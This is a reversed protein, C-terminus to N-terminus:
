CVIVYACHLALIISACDLGWFSLSLISFTQAQIDPHHHSHQIALSHNTSSHFHTNAHIHTHTTTSTIPNTDDASAPFIYINYLPNITTLSSTGVVFHVMWYLSVDCGSFQVNYSQMNKGSWQELRCIYVWGMNRHRNEWRCHKPLLIGLTFNFSGESLIETHRLVVVEDLM